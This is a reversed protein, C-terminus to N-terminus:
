ALQAMVRRLWEKGRHTDQIVTFPYTLATSPVMSIDSPDIPNVQQKYGTTKARALAEVYKRKVVVESGRPIPQVVGNVIVSIVPLDGEIASGSVNITVPENMFAELELENSSVREELVLDVSDHIGVESIKKARSQGVEHEETRNAM